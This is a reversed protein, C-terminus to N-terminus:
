ERRLRPGRNSVGSSYLWYCHVMYLSFDFKSVIQKFETFLYSKTAM